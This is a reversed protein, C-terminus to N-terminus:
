MGHPPITFAESLSAKDDYIALIQDITKDAIM